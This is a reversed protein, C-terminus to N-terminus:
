YPSTAQQWDTNNINQDINPNYLHDDTGIYQGDSNMWYNDYGSEVQYTEGNTPNYMTNEELIGNSIQQNGRNFSESQARYIGMQSQRIANQSEVHARQTAQFNAEKNRLRNQFTADQQSLKQMERQNHAAIVQQNFRVGELGRILATKANEFDNANVSMSKLTYGWMTMGMFSNENYHILVLSRRGDGNKWETALVDFTKRQDGYTYYQNAIAQDKQALSSLRYSKEFTLGLKSANPQVFQRLVGQAGIPQAVKQGAQAYSQRAYPDTPYVFSEPQYHQIELQNPGTILGTAQNVEWTAPFEIQYIAQGTQPDKVTHVKTGGNPLGTNSAQRTELRESTNLNDSNASSSCATLTFLSSALVLSAFKM